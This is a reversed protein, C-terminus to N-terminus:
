IYNGGDDVLLGELSQAREGCLPTCMQSVRSHHEAATAAANGWAYSSKTNIIIDNLIIVM